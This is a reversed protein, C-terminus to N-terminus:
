DTITAEVKAAALAGASETAQVLFGRTRPPPLTAFLGSLNTLHGLADIPQDTLFVAVLTKGTPPQATFAFPDGPAPITLDQGARVQNQRHHANPYLVTVSEEGETMSLVNLYGDRMVQCTIVMTDGLAFSRQNLSVRLSQQPKDALASLERWLARSSDSAALSPRPTKDSDPANEPQSMRTVWLATAVAVALLAIAAAAVALARRVGPSGSRSPREGAIGRGPLPQGPAHEGSVSPAPPAVVGATARDATDPDQDGALFRRVKLKIEPLHTEIPGASADLWHHTAIFYELTKHLDQPQTADARIPMIPVGKSGAREVERRVQGSANSARTLILVFLSSDAIADIISEAYDKGPLIDRPAIWCSIGIDELAQRIAQATEADRSSHSIFVQHSM